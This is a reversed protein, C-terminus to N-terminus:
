RDMVIHARGVQKDLCFLALDVYLTTARAFSLQQKKLIIMNHAAIEALNSYCLLKISLECYTLLIKLM